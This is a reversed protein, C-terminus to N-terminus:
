VIDGHDDHLYYTGGLALPPAAQRLNKGNWQSFNNPSDARFIDLFTTADLYDGFTRNDDEPIAIEFAM